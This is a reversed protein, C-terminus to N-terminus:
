AGICAACNWTLGTSVVEKQKLHGLSGGAMGLFGQLERLISFPLCSYLILTHATASSHLNHSCVSGSSRLKVGKAKKRKGPWRGGTDLEM